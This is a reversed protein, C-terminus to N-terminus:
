VRTDEAVLERAIAATLDTSEDDAILVRLQQPNPLNSQLVSVVCDRINIDENYAPIIVSISPLDTPPTVAVSLRPSATIASLIRQHFQLTIYGSFTLAGLEILELFINLGNWNM